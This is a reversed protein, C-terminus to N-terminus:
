QRKGGAAIFAEVQDNPVSYAVEDPGIMQTTGGTESDPTVYDTLFKSGDARGTLANIGETYSKVTQDYSKKQSTYKQTITKKINERAKESLFGTGLLAQSIGKGYANIWSQAYKQATAYEGERVVSGPDLAKALSYILAQDDAPNKTDTALSQSFNYGDQVTSFNTINQDSAFKSVKGRVATATTPSLGSYLQETGGSTAKPEGVRKYTGDTYFVYIGDDRAVTDKIEKNPNEPLTLEVPEISLTGDPKKTQRFFVAKNGIIQPKDKNIIDSANAINMSKYLTDFTQSDYGTQDILKQRQASDLTAGAAALMKMDEKSRTSEEKLFGMYKEANTSALTKANQVLTDARTNVGALINSIREAKAAKIANEEQVNVAETGQRQAEGTPSGLVGTAAGMARTQGLRGAGRQAAAQLESAALENVADIQAQVESRARERIATEDVPTTDLAGGPAFTTGAYGRSVTPAAVPAAPAPAPPTYNVKQDFTGGPTNTPTPTPDGSAPGSYRLVQGTTADKYEKNYVYPETPM